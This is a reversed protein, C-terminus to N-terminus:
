VSPLARASDASFAALVLDPEWCERLVLPDNVNKSLIHRELKACQEATWDTRVKAVFDCVSQEAIRHEGGARADMEPPECQLEGEHGGPIGQVIRLGSFCALRGGRFPIRLLRGYWPINVARADLLGPDSEDPAPNNRFEVDGHTMESRVSITAGSTSICASESSQFGQDALPTAAFLLRADVTAPLQVSLRQSPAPECHPTAPRKKQFVHPLEVRSALADPRSIAPPRRSVPQVWLHLHNARATLAWEETRSGGELCEHTSPTRDLELFRKSVYPLSALLEVLDVPCGGCRL